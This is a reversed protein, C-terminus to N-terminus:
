NCCRGGREQQTLDARESDNLEHLARLHLANVYGQESRGNTYARAYAHAHASPIVRAAPATGPSGSAAAIYRALSRVYVRHQKYMITM